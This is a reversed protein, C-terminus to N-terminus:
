RLTPGACVSIRGADGARSVNNYFEESFEGPNPCLTEVKGPLVIFSNEEVESLVRTESKIQCWHVFDSSEADTTSQALDRTNEKSSVLLLNERGRIKKKKKIKKQSHHTKTATCPKERAAM